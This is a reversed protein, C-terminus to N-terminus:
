FSAMCAPQKLAGAQSIGILVATVLAFGGGVALASLIGLHDVALGGALAGVGISMQASSVFIAGMAELRDPAMSFLWTQMAIPLLGFGVGWLMVLTVIMLKPAVGTALLLMPIGMLLATAILTWPASKAVAWGGALNGLFGTIGFGLLIASLEIPTMAAENLLYPSLYTYAAFQGVFITLVAALGLRALPRQLVERLAQLGAGPQAPLKPLTRLLLLMVIISLVAAIGFVTRWGTLEGLITGAPVGAVTGLSVGSFIMSTARAAQLPKLRPGLTGGITWFGGVAIGLLARGLLLMWLSSAFAVVVNSLALLALLVCLVQRRDFTWAWLLTLPAAMAAFLGPLTVMLGTQGESIGLERAVQPLLGVPLFETTVLAFAGIGVAAVSLWSAATSTSSHEANM